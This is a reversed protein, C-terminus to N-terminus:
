EKGEETENLTNTDLAAVWPIMGKMVVAQATRMPNPAVNNRNATRLVARGARGM